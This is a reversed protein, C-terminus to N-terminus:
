PPPPGEPRRDRPVRSNGPVPVPSQRLLAQAKERDGCLQATRARMVAYYARAHVDTRFLAPSSVASSFGRDPVQWDPGYTEALYHEPNGPIAWQRGGYNARAPEFASLRWQIDGPVDSFGCTLSGGARDHVFIDVAVGKHRLGFYRDGPRAIRPLLIRPHARLIGAIDPGGGPDRIVGIDIDRDHALPGNGRQFGLLTGAALFATVGSASLIDLIDTLAETAAGPSFAPLPHAAPISAAGALLRCAEGFAESFRGQHCFARALQRSPIPAGSVPGGRPQLLAAAKAPRRAAILADAAAALLAPSAGPVAATQTLVDAAADLARRREAEHPTIDAVSVWAKWALPECETILRFAGLAADREGLAHLALGRGFAAGAHGPAEALLSEFGSLAAAPDGSRMLASALAHRAQLDGPASSVAQRLPALAAAARGANLHSLGLRLHAETSASAPLDAHRGTKAM